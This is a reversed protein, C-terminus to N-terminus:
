EEVRGEGGNLDKVLQAHESVQRGIMWSLISEGYRMNEYWDNFARDNQAFIVRGAGLVKDQAVAMALEPHHKGVHTAFQREKDWKPFARSFKLGQNFWGAKKPYLLSNTSLNSCLVADDSKNVAAENPDYVGVEKLFARAKPGTTMRDFVIGGGRKLLAKLADPCDEFVRDAAKTDTAVFHLYDAGDLADGMKRASYADATIPRVIIANEFSRRTTNPKAATGRTYEVAVAQAFNTPVNAVPMKAGPITAGIAAGGWVGPKAEPIATFADDGILYYGCQRPAVTIEFGNTWAFREGKKVDLVWLPAAREALRSNLKVKGTDEANGINFVGLFLGEKSRQLVSDLTKSQIDYPNEGGLDAVTNQFKADFNPPKAFWVIRGKGVAKIEGDKLGLAKLARTGLSDGELIAGGGQKVFAVLEKALDETLVPDEPVYVVRYKALADKTFYRNVVIDFSYNRLKGVDNIRDDTRTSWNFKRGHLGKKVDYRYMAGDRFVALNKVTEMKAVKEGLRTYEVLRAFDAPIQTADRDYHEYTLNEQSFGNCGCVFPLEIQSVRNAFDQRDTGYFYYHHHVTRGADNDFLARMRKVVNKVHVIDYHPLVEVMCTDFYGAKDGMFMERSVGSNESNWMVVPLGPNRRKAERYFAKARETHEDQAAFYADKDKWDPWRENNNKKALEPSIACGANEGQCAANYVCDMGCKPFINQIEIDYGTLEPDTTDLGYTAPCFGGWISVSVGKAHAADCLETFKGGTFNGDEGWKAIRKMRDPMLAAVRNTVKDYLERPVPIGEWRPGSRSVNAGLARLHSASNTAWETGELPETEHWGNADISYVWDHDLRPRTVPIDRVGEARGTFVLPKANLREYEARVDQWRGMTAVLAGAGTAFPEGKKAVKHGLRLGVPVGFAQGNPWSHMRTLSSRDFVMGVVDNVRRDYLAYWGERLYQTFDYSPHPICDTASDLEAMVSLDKGALGPYVLRDFGCDGGCAWSVTLRFETSRASTMAYSWDVRPQEDYVTMTVVGYPFDFAVAKKYANDAVVTANTWGGKGLGVVFGDWAYGTSRMLIETPAQSGLIRLRRILGETRRRLDYSVDLKGNLISIEDDTRQMQLSSRPVTKKAKPNGWYVLFPKNERVRLTTKFLLRIKTDSGSDEKTRSRSGVVVKEAVCPVEEEWPTVLRVEDPNVAEGFDVIADVMVNRDEVDAASSILIPARRTWATNWWPRESMSSMCATNGIESVPLDTATKAEAFASAAGMAAMAALMLRKKM